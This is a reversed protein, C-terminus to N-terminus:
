KPTEGLVMLRIPTTYGEFYILIPFSFIGDPLKNVTTAQVLSSGKAPITSGFSFNVLDGETKIANIKLSKEHNNHVSFRFNKEAQAIKGLTIVNPVCDVLFFISDTELYSVSQIEIKRERAAARSFVSNKVDNPNDSTIQNATYEGYPVGVLELKGGNASTGDLYPAFVGNDYARLYNGLSMIRRQTLAVNYETKALPSAFGRINLRIQFGKQLEELLLSQFLVLDKVGQEVYQLFFSEIDEEAEVVKEGSLGKSYEKRYEPLM